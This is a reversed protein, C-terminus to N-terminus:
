LAVKEGSKRSLSQHFLLWFILFKSNGFFIPVPEIWASPRRQGGTRVPFNMGGEM